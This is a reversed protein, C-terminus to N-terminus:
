FFTSEEHIWGGVSPLEFPNMMMSSTMIGSTSGNTGYDTTPLEYNSADLLVWNISSRCCGKRFCLQTTQALVLEDMDGLRDMSMSQPPATGHIVQYDYDGTTNHNTTAM